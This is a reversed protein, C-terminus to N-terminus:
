SKLMKDETRLLEPIQKKNRECVRKSETPVTSNKRMAVAASPFSLFTKTHGFVWVSRVGHVGHNQPYLRCVGKVSKSQPESAATHAHVAFTVMKLEHHELHQEQLKELIKTTDDEHLRVQITAHALCKLVQALRASKDRLVRVNNCTRRATSTATYPRWRGSSRCCLLGHPADSPVTREWSRSHGRRRFTRSTSNVASDAHISEAVLLSSCPPPDASSAPKRHEEATTACATCM